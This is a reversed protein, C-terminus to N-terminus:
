GAILGRGTVDCREVPDIVDIALGVIDYRACRRRSVAGIWINYMFDWAQLYCFRRYYQVYYEFVWLAIDSVVCQVGLMINTYLNWYFLINTYDFVLGGADRIEWVWCGALRDPLRVQEALLDFAPGNCSLVRCSKYSINKESISIKKINLHDM